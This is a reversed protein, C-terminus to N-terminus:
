QWAVECDAETPAIPPGSFSVSVKLGAGPASCEFSLVTPELPRGPTVSEEYILNGDGDRVEVKGQTYTPAGWVQITVVGSQLNGSASVGQCPATAALLSIVISFLLALYSRTMRPIPEPM